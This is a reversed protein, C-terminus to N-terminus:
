LGSLPVARCGSLYFSRKLVAFWKRFRFEHEKRKCRPQQHGWGNSFRRISPMVQSRVVRKLVDLVMLVQEMGSAGPQTSGTMGNAPLRSLPHINRNLQARLPILERARNKLYIHLFNCSAFCVKCKDLHVRLSRMYVTPTSAAVSSARRSYAAKCSLSSHVGASLTLLLILKRNVGRETM